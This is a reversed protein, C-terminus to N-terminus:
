ELACSTGRAVTGPGHGHMPPSREGTLRFRWICTQWIQMPPELTCWPPLRQERTHRQPLRASLLSGGSLRVNVCENMHAVRASTIGRMMMLMLGLMEKLGVTADIHISLWAGAHHGWPRACGRQWRYTTHQRGAGRAGARLCRWHGALPSCAQPRKCSCSVYLLFRTVHYPQNAMGRADDASGPRSGMGPMGAPSGAPRWWPAM